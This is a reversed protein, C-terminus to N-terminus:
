PRARLARTLADVFRDEDRASVWLHPTVRMAARGRVSAHVNEAALRAALGDPVGSPFRLGLYHGGRLARPLTELGLPRLRAELRDTMARLSAQVNAAGWALLQTLAAIAMPVLHINAKEGVDFRRAGPQYDDRYDVLRTFDESGARTSWHEEIPRGAQRHPAVYLFGMGYPGLLWKYTAAVLYDPQVARVDLPLAGLSQTADVFLAAGVERARRGIAVLDLLAGDTWHVHPVAVLATGAGIRELVAPTWDDDAPRPVTDIAAGSRRAAERWAYVNSPFQEHLVVIRAGRAFELNAAAIAAGYSTSPQIAIDGPAAGVLRAFLARAEEAEVFFHHPFIEWPRAKRRAAAEGAAVASKMLPSIYACNLYAVDDPIDFLHRQCPIIAAGQTTDM